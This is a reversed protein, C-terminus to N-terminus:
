KCKCGIHAGVVIGGDRAMIMTPIHHLFIKSSKRRVAVTFLVM